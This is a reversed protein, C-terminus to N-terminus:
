INMANRGILRGLKYMVRICAPSQFPPFNLPFLLYTFYFYLYLLEFNTRFVANHM